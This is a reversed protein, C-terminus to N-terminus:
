AISFGGDIGLVQGTVWGAETSARNLIWTAVDEPEGRRKLPIMDREQSKIIEADEESFGMRVRLFESEVPGSAVANVRIGKPALELAWCRTAQELAAKSAAYDSFGAVAKRALTSSVNVITGQSEELHQLAASALLTPGIVNVAYIACTRDPDADALTSPAGAGANNVLVDIRGWCEVAKAITRAADAPVAADAVFGQVNPIGATIDDLMQQRRGTVLVKAGESAFRRAAALGIGGSGGTVIAVKGTFRSM